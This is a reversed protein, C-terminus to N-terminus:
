FIKQWEDLISINKDDMETFAYGSVIFKVKDAISEIEKESM